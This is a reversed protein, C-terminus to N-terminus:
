LFTVYNSNVILQGMNEGLSQSHITLSCGDKIFINTNITLKASDCLILHANGGVVISSSSSITEDAGKVVYWGEGLSDYIYPNGNIVTYDECGNDSEKLVLNKGSDDWDLYSIPVRPTVTVACSASKSGDKASATVTAEGASIGKAFVTIAFDGERVEYECNQDGYLKVANAGEGGVSWKAWRDTANDPEVAATLAVSEGVAISSNTKDLTVSTVPVFETITVTGAVTGQEDSSPPTTGVYYYVTYDGVDKGKLQDNDLATENNYAIWDGSNVRLYLTESSSWPDWGVFWILRQLEGRAALNQALEITPTDEAYATLSMGPMLGLVLVLSLLISLFRKKMKM